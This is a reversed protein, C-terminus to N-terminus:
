KLIDRGGWGCGLSHSARPPSFEAPSHDASSSPSGAAWWHCCSLHWFPVICFMSLTFKDILLSRILSPLIKSGWAPSCQPEMEAWTWSTRRWNDNRCLSSPFDMMLLGTYSHTSFLINRNGSNWGGASDQARSSSPTDLITQSFWSKSHLSTLLFRSLATDTFCGNDTEHCFSPIFSTPFSTAIQRLSIETSGTIVVILTVLVLHLDHTSQLYWLM